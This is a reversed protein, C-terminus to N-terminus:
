PSPPPQYDKFPQGKIVLDIVVATDGDISIKIHSGTPVIALKDRYAEPIFFKDVNAAFRNHSCVGKIYLNCDATIKSCSGVDKGKWLPLDSPLAAAMNDDQPADTDTVARLCVCTDGQQQWCPDFGWDVQYRIYHGSILDRPDYGKIPLYGKVGSEKSGHLYLAWILLYLLGPVTVMAPIWRSIKM